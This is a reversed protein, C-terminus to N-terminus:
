FREDIEKLKAAEADDKPEHHREVIQAVRESGGVQRILAAGYVDHHQYLQWAGQIGKLRPEAPIDKPTYLHTAIRIAPNYPKLCKGVDHLFTARILEDSADPYVNLLALVVKLAHHRDRVDMTMYLGFESASLTQKALTDDAVAFQPLFALLTRKFANKLYSTSDALASFM